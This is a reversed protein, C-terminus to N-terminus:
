SSDLTCITPPWQMKYLLVERVAYERLAYYASLSTQPHPWNWTDLRSLLKTLLWMLWTGNSCSYCQMFVRKTCLGLM